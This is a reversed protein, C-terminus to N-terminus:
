RIHELREIGENMRKASAETAKTQKEMAITFKTTAIAMAGSGELLAAAAKNLKGSSIELLTGSKGFSAATKSAADGWVAEANKGATKFAEEGTKALGKIGEAGGADAGLKRGGETATDVDAQPGRNKEEQAAKRTANVEKDITQNTEKPISIGMNMLADRIQAAFNQNNMTGGWATSSRMSRQEKTLADVDDGAVLANFVKKNEKNKIIENLLAGPVGVAYGVGGQQALESVGKRTAVENIWKDKEFLGRGKMGEVTEQSMGQRELFTMQEKESKGRMGGMMAAPMQALLQAGRADAGLGLGEQIRAINIMGPFSTSINNRAGENSQYTKYAIDAALEKNPNKKDMAGLISTLFNTPDAGGARTTEETMRATNEVIMDIAKSSNLGRQMGEEIVKSLNQSPNGSGASGLIGMRRMNQEALGHGKNELYKADIVQSSQFMSGMASAGQGSLTGMEKLGVGETRMKGLFATSATENLFAEGVAGGMQGSAENLGMTYDRYKQLQHGPIYNLAKSANVAAHTGDIRLRAKDINRSWNYGEEIGGAAASAITVGSRAVNEVVNNGVVTGATGALAAGGQALGTAAGAVNTALKMVHINTQKDALQDGFEGGVAWAGLNMRATMDGGIASHWMNYKENEIGAAGQINSMQQMPQNIAVNQYASTAISLGEMIAGAITKITDYKSGGGGIGQAEQVDKLEKAAEEASSAFKEMIEDSKGFSNRLDDMAKVLKLSADTEKQKLDKPSLAGLGTGSKMQEELANTNLVGAANQSAKTLALLRGQPDRGEHKFQALGASTTMLENALGKFRVQSKHMKKISDQDINGEEDYLNGASNLARQRVRGMEGQIAQQRKRLEAYSTSTPANLGASQNSMSNSNRAVYSGVSSDSFERGISNVAQASTREQRTAEYLNLRPLLSTETKQASALRKAFVPKARSVPDLSNVAAIDTQAQQLRLRMNRMAAPERELSKVLRGVDALGFEDDSFFNNPSGPRKNVAM